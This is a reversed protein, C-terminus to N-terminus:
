EKNVKKNTDIDKVMEIVDNDTISDGNNLFVIEDKFIEKLAKCFTYGKQQWLYDVKLLVSHIKDQKTM